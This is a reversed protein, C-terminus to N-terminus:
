PRDFSKMVADKPLYGQLVDPSDGIVIDDINELKYLSESDKWFYSHLKWEHSGNVQCQLIASVQEESFSLPEKTVFQSSIKETHSTPSKFNRSVISIAAGKKVIFSKM